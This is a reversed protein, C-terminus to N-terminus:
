CTPLSKWGSAIKKSFDMPQDIRGDTTIYGDGVKDTRTSYNQTNVQMPQSYLTDGSTTLFSIPNTHRNEEETLPVSLRHLIEAYPYGMKHLKGNIYQQGLFEYLRNFADNDSVLFIKKIYQAISPSGDATTPDNYVPTQGSFATKTIMASHSNLGFVKLENLRQLALLAVPMKVTSAPYFYHNSDVNFYFTSFVPENNAQRNIQTYIIQVRLDDRRALIDAFQDPYSTLLEELFVDTKSMVAFPKQNAAPLPAEIIVPKPVQPAVTKKISHCSLVCLLCLSHVVFGSKM